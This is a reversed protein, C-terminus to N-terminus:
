FPPVPLSLLTVMLATHAAAGGLVFLHWVEHHGFVGPWPDPRRLAYIVAGFTYSLGGVVLWLLSDAPLTPILRYGPIVVMWGMALYLGVSLWTPCDIWLIKLLVGAVAVGGVVSIMVVRWTGDLTHMLTGVYTGAIFLFIASHDLRRLWANGRDGLDFYHYIASASFLLVATGGFLAMSVVKASDPAAYAVLFVLAVTSGLAGAAHTWSSVPDKNLQM